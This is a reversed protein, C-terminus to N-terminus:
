SGRQRPGSTTEIIGGKSSCQDEIDMRWPCRRWFLEQSTTSRSFVIRHHRFRGPDQNSDEKGERCAHAEDNNRYGLIGIQMDIFCM